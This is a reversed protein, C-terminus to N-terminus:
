KILLPVLKEVADFATKLDDTIYDAVVSTRGNNRSTYYRIGMITAEGKFPAPATIKAGLTIGLINDATQM